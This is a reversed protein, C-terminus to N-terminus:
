MCLHDRISSASKEACIVDRIFYFAEQHVEKDNHKGVPLNSVVTFLVTIFLTAFLIM